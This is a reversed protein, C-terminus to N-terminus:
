IYIDIIYKCIYCLHLFMPIFEYKKELVNKIITSKRHALKHQVSFHCIYSIDYIYIYVDHCIHLTMYIIYIYIYVDHCIHSTM